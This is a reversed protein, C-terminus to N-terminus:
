GAVRLVYHQWICEIEGECGLIRGAQSGRQMGGGTIVSKVGAPTVTVRDNGRGKQRRYIAKKTNRM